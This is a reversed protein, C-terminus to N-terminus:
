QQLSSRPLVNRTRWVGTQLLKGSHYLFFITGFLVIRPRDASRNMVVLRLATTLINTTTNTQVKRIRVIPNTLVLIILPNLLNM